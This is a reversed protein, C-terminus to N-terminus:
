EHLRIRPDLAVYLLDVALNIVVMLTAFVLVCGQVAPYDRALLSNVVYRGLGPWSFITEIIVAGGLLIGLNLGLVTVVPLIANRLSHRLIVVREPLGKAWATRVYDRNLVELMSSRTMRAVIAMPITALSFAPLFLHWMADAFVRVDARLLADVVLAGTLPEVEIGMSLRGMMPFIPLEVSLIYILLLGLWFIPMSVGALSLVMSLYDYLSYQRISSIVGATIGFFAAIALAVLTLEVTATLRPLIDQSVPIDTRLSVGLNGHLLNKLYIWYQVAFSRDLGMQHRLAEVQEPTSEEGAMIMAPDGPIARLMLFVMVTVGLLILGLHSLRQVLYAFM